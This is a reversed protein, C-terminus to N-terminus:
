DEPCEEETDVLECGTIRPGNWCVGTDSWRQVSVLSDDSYYEFRGVNMGGYSLVRLEDCVFSGDWECASHSRAYTPCDDECTQSLPSDCCGSAGIDLAVLM